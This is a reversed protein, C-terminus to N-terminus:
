LKLSKSLELRRSLSDAVYRGKSSDSKWRGHRKLCRDNVGSNATMTAGGSRLSHLGINLGGSVLKLTATICERARTYSLAKNNYILKCNKGSRFCPRFLFITDSLSQHTLGLYRVQMAYPCALSDGKSIVILDGLRM